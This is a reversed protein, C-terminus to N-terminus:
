NSVLIAIGTYIYNVNGATFTQSALSNFAFQQDTGGDPNMIWVAGADQRLLLFHMLDTGAIIAVIMARAGTTLDAATLGRAEVKIGTNPHPEYSKFAGYKAKVGAPMQALLTGTRKEDELITVKKMMVKAAHFAILAPDSGSNDKYKIQNFLQGEQNGINGGGTQNLEAVATALAVAGCSTQQTQGFSYRPM